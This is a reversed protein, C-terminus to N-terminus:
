DLKLKVFVSKDIIFTIWIILIPVVVIFMRGDASGFISGGFYLTVLFLMFRVSFLVKQWNVITIILSMLALIVIIGNKPIKMINGYTQLQYSYTLDFIIRGANCIINRLYKVPDSKINNLAIRKFADDREVGNFKNIEKFDKGHNIAIFTGAVPL